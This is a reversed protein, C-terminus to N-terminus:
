RWRKLDSRPASKCLSATAALGSPSWVARHLRQEPDLTQRQAARQLLRASCLATQAWHLPAGFADSFAEGTYRSSSRAAPTQSFDFGDGHSGPADTQASGSGAVMPSRTARVTKSRSIACLALDVVRKSAGAVPALTEMAAPQYNRGTVMELVRREMLASLLRAAKPQFLAKSLTFYRGDGRARVVRVPLKLLGFPTVQNIARWRVATYDSRCEQLWRQQFAAFVKAYFERGSQQVLTVIQEELAKVEPAMESLSLSCVVSIVETTKKCASPSM